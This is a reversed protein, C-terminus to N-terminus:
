GGAGGKQAARLTRLGEPEVSAAALTARRTVLPSTKPSPTAKARWFGTRSGVRRISSTSSSSSATAGDGCGALARGARALLIPNITTLTPLMAALAIWTPMYGLPPALCARTALMHVTATISVLPFTCSAWGPHIPRLHERLTHRRQVAGVLTISVSIANIMALCVLEAWARGDGGTARSTAVIGHGLTGAACSPTAFSPVVRLWALTFFPVPALMLCWSPDAAVTVNACVSRVVMPYTVLVAAGGLVLGAIAMPPWAANGCLTIMSCGVFIPFWRPTPVLRRRCADRLFFAALAWQLVCAVHLLVRGCLRLNAGSWPHDDLQSAALQVAGLTVALSALAASDQLDHWIQHPNALLRAMLLSQVWYSVALLMVHVYHLSPLAHTENFASLLRALAAMNLAVAAVEVPMGALRDRLRGLLARPRRQATCVAPPPVVLQILNDTSRIAPISPLSDSSTNLAPFSPLTDTSANPSSNISSLEVFTGKGLTSSRAISPMWGARRSPRTRSPSCSGALARAPTDQMKEADEITGNKEVCVTM